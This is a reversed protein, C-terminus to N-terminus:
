SIHVLKASKDLQFAAWDVLWVHPIIEWEFMHGLADGLVQM